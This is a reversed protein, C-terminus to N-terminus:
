IDLGGQRDVTVNPNLKIGGMTLFGVRKLGFVIAKSESVM